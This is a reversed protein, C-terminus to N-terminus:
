SHKGRWNTVQIHHQICGFRSLYSFARIRYISGLLISSLSIATCVSVLFICWYWYIEVSVRADICTYM